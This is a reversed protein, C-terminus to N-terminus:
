RVMGLFSTVVVSLSDDSGGTCWDPKRKQGLRREWKHLPIDFPRDSIENVEAM